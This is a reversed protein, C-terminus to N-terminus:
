FPAESEISIAESTLPHQFSLLTSHLLLRPSKDRVEQSAYLRDGLIAHGLTQLHVRIQHTRGTLPILELRSTLQVRDYDKVIFRTQSPKGREYNVIQKPRNPWDTILPLDIVGQKEEPLGDVIAVYKKAVQRKEFLISLQRHVNDDLAMLMAGSTAMDLRHVIRAQPFERQVRYIQCDQKDAERGPVSLLGAPKNVVLLVNDQYLIDLGTDVPPVYKFPVSSM